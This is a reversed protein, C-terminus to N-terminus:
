AADKRHATIKRDANDLRERVASRSIGLAISISRQSIGKLRLLLVDYERDTIVGQIRLAALQTPTM